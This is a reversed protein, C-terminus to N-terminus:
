PAERRFAGEIIVASASQEQRERERAEARRRVKAVTSTDVDEHGAYNGRKPKVTSTCAGPNLNTAVPPKKMLEPRRDFTAFGHAVCRRLVKGTDYGEADLASLEQWLALKQGISMVRGTIRIREEEYIDWDVASISAPLGSNDVPRARAHAYTTTTTNVPSGSTPQEDAYDTPQEHPQEIQSLGAGNSRESPNNMPNYNPTTRPNNRMEPSSDRHAALCEFFLCRDENKIWRILGVRELERFIARLAERTFRQEKRQSGRVPSFELLEALSQYSVKRKHGVIGTAYDMHPRIGLIYALKAAHSLASAGHGALLELEKNDLRVSM